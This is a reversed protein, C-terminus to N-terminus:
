SHINQVFIQRYAKEAIDAVRVWSFNRAFNRCEEADLHVEGSLFRILANSISTVDPQEVFFGSRGEGIAEVAGALRAALSPVGSAAAELYVIGFGEHSGPIISATLIFLDARSYLQRLDADSIRGVFRVCTGLGLSNALRELSPRLTGEGAIIYEFEFRDKLTALARLVLDINKREESLRCVTLLQAIKNKPARPVDFFIPDVGVLAIHTKAACDPYKDLLVDATYRSNSLLASTKPLARALVRRTANSWLPHLKRWVWPRLRWFGPLALAPRAVLPYPGLFDNGHVSVVTPRNKEAIWSHCASLAHWVDIPENKLKPWDLGACSQLIPKLTAGPPPTITASKPPAYITVQLDQRRGLEKALQWAYTEVGGLDPPFESTILGIRMTM